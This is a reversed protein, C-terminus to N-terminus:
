SKVQIQWGREDTCYGLACHKKKRFKQHEKWCALRHPNNEGNNLRQGIEQREKAQYVQELRIATKSWHEWQFEIPSRKISIFSNRVYIERAFQIWMTWSLNLRQNPIEKESIMYSYVFNKVAHKQDATKTESSMLNSEGTNM